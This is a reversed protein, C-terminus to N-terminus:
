LYKVYSLSACVVKRTTFIKKINNDTITIKDLYTRKLYNSSDIYEPLIKEFDEKLRKQTENNEFNNLPIQKCRSLKIKSYFNDSYITYVKNIFEKTSANSSITIIIILLIKKFM